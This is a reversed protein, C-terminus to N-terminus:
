YFWGILIFYFDGIFLRIDGEERFVIDIYSHKWYNSTHSKKAVVSKSFFINNAKLINRLSVLILYKKIIIFDAHNLLYDLWIFTFINPMIM